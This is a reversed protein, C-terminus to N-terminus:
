GMIVGLARSGMFNSAAIFVLECLHATCYLQDRLKTLGLTEGGRVSVVFQQVLKEVTGPQPFPLLSVRRGSYRARLSDEREALLNRCADGRCQRLSARLKTFIRACLSQGGSERSEEPQM